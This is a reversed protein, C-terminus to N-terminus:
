CGDQQAATPKGEQQKAVDAASTATNAGVNNMAGVTGPSEAKAGPTVKATSSPEVNSSKDQAAKQGATGTACPAAFSATASMAVIVGAGILSTLKSM